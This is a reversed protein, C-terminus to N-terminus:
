RSLIPFKEIFDQLIPTEIIISDFMTNRLLNCCVKVNFKIGGLRVFVTVKHTWKLERDNGM